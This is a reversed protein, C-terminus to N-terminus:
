RTSETKASYGARKEFRIEAAMRTGHYDGNVAHYESHVRMPEHIRGGKPNDACVPSDAFAGNAVLWNFHEGYMKVIERHCHNCTGQDRRQLTWVVFRDRFGDGLDVLVTARGNVRSALQLVEVPGVSVISIKIM